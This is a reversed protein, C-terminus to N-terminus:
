VWPWRTLLLMIYKTNAIVHLTHMSSGYLIRCLLRHTQLTILSAFDLLYNYNPTAIQM